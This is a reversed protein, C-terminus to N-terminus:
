AVKGRDQGILPSGPGTAANLARGTSGIQPCHGLKGYKTHPVFPAGGFGM